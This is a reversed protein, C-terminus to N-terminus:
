RGANKAAPTTQMMADAATSVIRLRVVSAMRAAGASYGPTQRRRSHRIAVSSVVIRASVEAYLDRKMRASHPSVRGLTPRVGYGRQALSRIKTLSIPLDAGQLM